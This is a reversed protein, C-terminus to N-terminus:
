PVLDRNSAPAPGVELTGPAILLVDSGVGGRRAAPRCAVRIRWGGTALAQKLGALSVTEGRVTRLLSLGFRHSPELYTVNGVWLRVPPGRDILRIDTPWLRLVSLRDPSPGPHTMHLREHRGDHVRPLVPIEQASAESRFWQLLEAAGSPPQHWGAALLTERVQGLDGAWQLRLPYEREGALDIRYAPLARWRDRWWESASWQQAVPPPRYARLNVPYRVGANIGLALGLVALALLGLHQHAPVPGVAHQRYAIGLLAVWSMALALGALVDSLWHAGLYVRSIGVGAIILGALSYSLPRLRYPIERALMVALFGYVAMSGTAHGSPFSFVGTVGAYTIPRSVETFLKLTHMMLVPVLVAALWHVLARWHRRWALWLGVLVVVSSLVMFDGMGTVFTMISDAVPTRLEQFSNFVLHDLNPLLPSGTVGPILAVFIMASALLILAMLALGRAEPHQPDLLTAPLEGLVPHGQSWLLVRKVVVYTRPALIGWLRRLAWAVLWLLALTVILFLALRGAVESALQLSTGFAVGPLLYAPAWVLSALVNIVLYRSVPMELMGAVAPIIPRLPGVFRGLAVSKGGHRHFFDVGRNVLRPYARFPWVARLQMKYHRGLWYSLGDGVMAGLVAMGMTSWFPLLDAGILAGAGFMLVAGPMILGVIALSESLAILFVILGAWASHESVWALVSEPSIAEV